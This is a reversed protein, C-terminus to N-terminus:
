NNSHLNEYRLDLARKVKDFYESVTMYGKERLEPSISSYTSNMTNSNASDVEYQIAPESVCIKKSKMNKM